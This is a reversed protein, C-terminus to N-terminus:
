SLEKVKGGFLPAFVTNKLAWSLAPLIPFGTCLEINKFIVVGSFSSLVIFVGAAPLSDQIKVIKIIIM